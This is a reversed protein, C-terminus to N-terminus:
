CPLSITITCGPGPNNAAIVDGGMSKVFKKVLALGIGTGRTNRTLSNDVRYFDEFIKKLANGPIGPGTDSVSVLMREGEPRVRLTINKEPAGKGFKMSNEILNILVQIMVERDYKFQTGDEHEVKFVFGEQRIKERMVDSVESIVEDFTGARLELRRQRTELKSFELVNNILRSLRASESGLIRFYDQERERDRAIGQELMEIYMRINTLPTKLEHTVSSVFGSRRESMDLVVSASRYIAFLGGMIIFGLVVVMIMLTRRGGSRPVQECSLGAKLFSFPRPFTRNLTIKPKDPIAGVQYARRERGQEVVDFELGTFHAMPQNVYHSRALSRVLEGVRIVLGQRYVRNDIMIRRFIFVKDEDLFVSQMPDVEAQFTNDDFSAPSSAGGGSDADDMAEEAKAEYRDARGVNDEKIAQKKGKNVNDKDFQAINAAQNVTIKEVRRKQQGLHAKQQPARSIYRNSFSSEAQKQEEQVMEREEDPEPMSEPAQTKKRNFVENAIKLEAVTVGAKKKNQDKLPSFFSGDPNNQFYGLIYKEDPPEALNQRGSRASPDLNYEDIARAEEVRVLRALEGEMRDFVTEAFYKLEAVEEQKLGQYTRIIFYALPITLAACFLLILVQLRRM